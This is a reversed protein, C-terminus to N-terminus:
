WEVGPHAEAFSRFVRNQVSKPAKALVMPHVDIMFEYLDAFIRAINDMRHYGAIRRANESLRRQLDDNKFIEIVRDAFETLTDCLFGTEGDIIVDQIGMANMGVSPVGQAMAELLVLGQAEVTSWLCTVTAAAYFDLLDQFPAFGTQVVVGELRLQKILPKVREVEPGRGVLCLRSNPYEHNIKKFAKIVSAIRKEPAMRSAYVLLKADGLNHKERIRAANGPRFYVDEIGNSISLIPDEMGQELVFRKKSPTPVTILDFRNYFTREIDWIVANFVKGLYRGLIDESYYALPSHATVLKPVHHHKGMSLGYAGVFDPTQVHVVDLYDYPKTLGEWLGRFMPVSVYFDQSYNARWALLEHYTMGKTKPSQDFMPHKNPAFIHVEHGLKTLAFALKRAAKSNGNIESFLATVLGITLKGM